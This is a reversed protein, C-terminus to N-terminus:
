SEGALQLVENTLTESYFLGAMRIREVFPRVTGVLGTEKARLLVGLSGVISIGNVQAVKRARSDDMLLLDAHLRRYLAM